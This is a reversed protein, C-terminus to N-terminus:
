KIVNSGGDLLLRKATAKRNPLHADAEAFTQAFSGSVSVLVVAPQEGSLSGIEFVGFLQEAFNVIETALSRPALIVFEDGGRRFVRPAIHYAAAVTRLVDAAQCLMWDGAGHGRLKNVKGFDNLDFVLVCTDPDAEAAPLAKDLARRNALGTLADLNAARELEDRRQKGEPFILGAVAERTRHLFATPTVDGTNM